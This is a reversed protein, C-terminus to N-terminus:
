SPLQIRWITSANFNVCNPFIYLTLLPFFPLIFLYFFLFIGWPRAVFKWAQYGQSYCAERSLIGIGRHPQFHVLIKLNSIFLLLPWYLVFFQQLFSPTCNYAYFLIISYLHDRITCEKYSWIWTEGVKEATCIGSCTM